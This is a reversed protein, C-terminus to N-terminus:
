SSLAIRGSPSGRLAESEWFMDSPGAARQELIGPRRRRGGGGGACRNGRYPTLRGSVAKGILRAGTTIGLPQTSRRRLVARVHLGDGLENCPQVM